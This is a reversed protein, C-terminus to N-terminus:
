KESAEDPLKEIKVIIPKEEYIAYTIKLRADNEIVGGNTASINYGYSFGNPDFEFITNGIKFTENGNQSVNYESVTGESYLANEGKEAANMLYTYEANSRLSLALAILLTCLALTNPLIKVLTQSVKNKSFKPIKPFIVGIALFFVFIFFPILSAFQFKGGLEYLINNDM